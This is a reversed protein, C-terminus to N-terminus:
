SLSPFGSFASPKFEEKKDEKVGPKPEEKTKDAKPM